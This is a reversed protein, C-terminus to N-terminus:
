VRKKSKIKDIIVYRRNRFINVRGPGNTKQDWRTGGEREAERTEYKVKTACNIRGAAIPSFNEDSSLSSAIKWESRRRRRRKKGRTEEKGGEARQESATRVSRNLRQSRLYFPGIFLLPIFTRATANIRAVCSFYKDTFLNTGRRRACVGSNSITYHIM